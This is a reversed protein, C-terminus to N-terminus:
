LVIGSYQWLTVILKEFETFSSDIQNNSIRPISIELRHSILSPHCFCKDKMLELCTTYTEFIQHFFRILDPLVMIKDALFCLNTVFLSLNPTIFCIIEPIPFM